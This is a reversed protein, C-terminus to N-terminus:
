AADENRDLARRSEPASSRAGARSVTTTALPPWDEIALGSRRKMTRDKFWITPRCVIPKNKMGVNLFLLKGWTGNPPDLKEMNMIDETRM